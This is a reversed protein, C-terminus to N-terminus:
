FFTHILSLSLQNVNPLAMLLIFLYIFEVIYEYLKDVALPPHDLQSYGAICHVINVIRLFNPACM